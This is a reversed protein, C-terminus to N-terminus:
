KKYSHDRDVTFDCIKGNVQKNEKKSLDGYNNRPM